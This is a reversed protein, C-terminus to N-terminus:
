EEPVSELKATYHHCPKKENLEFSRKLAKLTNKLERNETELRQIEAFAVELESNEGSQAKPELYEDDPDTTKWHDFSM